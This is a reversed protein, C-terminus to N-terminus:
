LVYNVISAICRESPLYVGSRLFVHLGRESTCTFLSISVVHLYPVYVCRMSIFMILKGIWVFYIGIGDWTYM